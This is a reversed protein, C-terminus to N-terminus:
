TLLPQGEALPRRRGEPNEIGNDARFACYAKPLPAARCGRRARMRGFREPREPRPWAKANLRTQVAM